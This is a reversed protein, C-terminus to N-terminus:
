QATVGPLYSVFDDFTTANFNALTEGTLQQITIPGNQLAEDRRNATVMIEDPLEDNAVSVLNQRPAATSLIRISHPTLYEFNLGTGRLLGPLADQPRAGARVTSSRQNVVVGSLYVVQFGTQKAFAALADALPQAPIDAVLAKPEAEQGRAIPVDLLATPACGALVRMVAAAVAAIQGPMQRARKSM